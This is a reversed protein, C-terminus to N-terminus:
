GALLDGYQHRGGQQGLLVLLIKGVAKGVPRKRDFGQRSETGCLFGALDDFADFGAADIDDDACVPQQLAVQAELVKAQDDDVLLMAEADPVLFPELRQAGLGIYQGQGCRGNWARQVHCQSPQAVQRQDGRRRFRAEADLGEHGAPFRRQDAFGAQAFQFAAALHVEYVIMDLVDLLGSRCEDSITGSARM